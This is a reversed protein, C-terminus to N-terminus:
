SVPPASAPSRARGAGVRPRASPLQLGVFSGRERRDSSLSCVRASDARRPTARTPRGDARGHARTTGTVLGAASGRSRTRRAAAGPPARPAARRGRGPTRRGAGAAGRRGAVGPQQEVVGACATASASPTRRSSTDNVAEPVSATCRPRSPSCRPAARPSAHDCEATSCEATSCAAPTARRRRPRATRTSRSPRTPRRRRRGRVAGSPRRAALRALWSTPVTWGTASTAATAGADRQEDVGAGRRAPERQGLAPRRGGARGVLPAARGADAHQQDALAGAPAVREGLSSRTSSRTM